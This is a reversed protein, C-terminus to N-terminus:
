SRSLAPIGKSEFTAVKLENVYVSFTPGIAIFEMLTAGPTNMKM